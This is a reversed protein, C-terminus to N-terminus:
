APCNSVRGSQDPYNLISETLTEGQRAMEELLAVLDELDGDMCVELLRADDDLEEDDEDDEEDDDEDEEGEGLGLAEVEVEEDELSM